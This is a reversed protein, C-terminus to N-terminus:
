GKKTFVGIQMDPEAIKLESPRLRMSSEYNGGGVIILKAKAVRRDIFTEMGYISGFPPMAGIKIGKLNNKMWRETAFNISKIPKLGKKKRSINIVRQLKNKDLNKNGPIAAVIYERDARLILTKCIIDPKVKLTRAKDFSTYVTKHEIEEFKAKTKKLHKLVKSSIM